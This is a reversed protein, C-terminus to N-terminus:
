AITAYTGQNQEDQKLSLYTLFALTPDLIGFSVCVQAPVGFFAWLTMCGVPTMIMRTFITAVAWYNNNMRSAMIYFYGIGIVCFGMGPYLATEEDGPLFFMLMGSSSYIIGQLILFKSTQRITSFEPLLKEGYIAEKFVDTISLGPSETNSPDSANLGTGVGAARKAALKHYPVTM